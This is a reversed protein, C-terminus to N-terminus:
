YFIIVLPQNERLQDCYNSLVDPHRCSLSEVISLGSLILLVRYFPLICQAVLQKYGGLKM